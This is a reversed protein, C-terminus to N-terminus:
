WTGWPALKPAAVHGTAGAGAVLGLAARPPPPLRPHMVSAGCKRITTQACLNRGWRHSFYSPVTLETSNRYIYEVEMRTAHLFLAM